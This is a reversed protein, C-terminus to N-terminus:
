APTIHTEKYEEYMKGIDELNKGVCYRKVFTGLKM